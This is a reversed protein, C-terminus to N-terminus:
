HIFISDSKFGFKIKLNAKEPPCPYNLVCHMLCIKSKPLNLIKLAFNIEKITSAGTSLIVHKKKLGIKKLLPVNTIDSSSIKFVQILKNYKDVNETDFITTLFKIKKKIM